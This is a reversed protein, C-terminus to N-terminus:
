ATSRAFKEAQKLWTRCFQGFLHLRKGLEPDQASRKSIHQLLLNDALSFIKQLQGLEERIYEPDLALDDPYIRTIKSGETAIGRVHRIKERPINIFGKRTDDKFDSLNDALKVAMGLCNAVNILERPNCLPDLIFLFQQAVLSGINLTLCDLRERNLVAWKRQLNWTEMEWFNTTAQYINDSIARDAHEGHSLEALNLGLNAAAQEDAESTQVDCGRFSQEFIRRIHKLHDPPDTTTDLVDDVIALGHNVLDLTEQRKEELLLRMESYIRIRGTEDMERVRDSTLNQELDM